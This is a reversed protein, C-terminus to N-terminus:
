SGKAYRRTRIRSASLLGLFEQDYKNLGEEGRMKLIERIEDSTYEHFVLHDPQLPSKVSEDNMDKYWYVRQTLLILNAKTHRTLHYLIDYDQLFDVEDLIVLSKGSLMSDFRGKAEDIDHGRSDIRTLKRYIKISTANERANVYFVTRIQKEQVGISNDACKTATPNM